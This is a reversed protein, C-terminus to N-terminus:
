GRPSLLRRIGADSNCGKRRAALSIAAPGLIVLTPLWVDPIVAVAALVVEVAAIATWFSGRRRQTEAHGRLLPWEPGQPGYTRFHFSGTSDDDRM